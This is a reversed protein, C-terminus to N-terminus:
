SFIYELYIHTKDRNYLKFGLRFYLRQAPNEQYTKLIIRKGTPRAFEIYSNLIQTAIGRNRYDPHLVILGVEFYNDYEGFTTAGIDQGDLMIIKMNPLKEDFEKKTFDRQINEDWGYIKEIYWKMGLEKLKLVYELDDYTCPRFKIDM